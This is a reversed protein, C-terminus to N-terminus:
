KISDSIVIAYDDPKNEEETADYWKVFADHEDKYEFSITTMTPNFKTGSAQSMQEMMQDMMGNYTVAGSLEATPKHESIYADIKSLFRTQFKTKHWTEPTEDPICYTM